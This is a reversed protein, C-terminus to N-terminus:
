CGLARRDQCSNCVGCPEPGAECSYTQDLPLAASQFARFVNAKSWNLLPALLVVRGDTQEEVLRGISEIFAPSCDYYATGAHVGIVVLGSRQGMLFVGASILLANRGTQEGSGRAHGGVLAQATLPIGLSTAIEQAARHERKAASQGYDIFLGQVSYGQRGLMYACLTSDIGGSLLVTAPRTEM